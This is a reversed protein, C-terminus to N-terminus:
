HRPLASFCISCSKREGVGKKIKIKLDVSKLSVKKQSNGPLYIFFQSRVKNFTTYSHSTKGTFRPGSIRKLSIILSTHAISALVKSESLVSVTNKAAKDYYKEVFPRAIAFGFVKITNALCTKARAERKGYRLHKIGNLPVNFKNIIEQYKEGLTDM